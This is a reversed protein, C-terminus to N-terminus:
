MLIMATTLKHNLIKLLYKDTHILCYNAIINKNILKKNIYKFPKSFLPFYILTISKAPMHVLITMINIAYVISAWSPIIPEM